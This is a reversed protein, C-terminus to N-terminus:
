VPPKEFMAPTWGPVKFQKIAKRQKLSYGLGINGSEGAPRLVMHHPNCCNAHGCLHRVYNDAPLHGNSFAYALRSPSYYVGRINVKPRHTSPHVKKDVLRLDIDSEEGEPLVKKKGVWLWCACYPDEPNYLPPDPDEFTHPNPHVKAWFRERQKETFANMWIENLTKM